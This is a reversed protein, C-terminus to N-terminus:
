AWSLVGAFLPAISEGAARAARHGEATLQYYRRPRGGREPLPDAEYSKVLGDREMNRLEPYVTAQSLKIEGKTRTAVLEILELGYGKHEKSNMLAALLAARYTLPNEMALYVTVETKSSAVVNKTTAGLVFRPKGDPM